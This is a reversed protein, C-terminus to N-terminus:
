DVNSGLKIIKEINETSFYSIKRIIRNNPRHFMNDLMYYFAGPTRLGGVSVADIGTDSLLWDAFQVCNVNVGFYSKFSGDTVTFIKANLFRVLNEGSDGYRKGPEPTTIEPNEIKLELPECYEKFMTIRDKVSNLQKESFCAGYSIIYDGCNDICYKYYPLKPIEAYTGQSIFGAMKNKSKDYTGYSYVTNGIAIDMHGFQNGKPDTLHLNIELNVTDLDCNPKDEVVSKGDFKKEDIKQYIEKVMNKVKFATILNPMAIHTRRRIRDEELESRTVEAYFDGFLTIAYIFLYLSIFYRLASFNDLPAIALFLGTLILILAFLGNMIGGRYGNLFCNVCIAARVIGVIVAVIGILLCPTITILKIYYQLLLLVLAVALYLALGLIGTLFKKIRFKEIMFSIGGLLLSVSVILVMLSEVTEDELFLLVIGLIAVGLASLFTVIPKRHKRKEKAMEQRRLDVQKKADAYEASIEYKSLIIRIEM